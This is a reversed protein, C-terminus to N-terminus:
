LREGRYKIMKQAESIDKFHGIGAMAFLAAGYAAEERYLPIQLPMGFKRTFIKQLLMNKRIGNGSGVIMDPNKDLVPIINQYLDHLEAAIGELIGMTFHQPTFNDIGINRIIGRLSPKDRTGRFNTSIELKNEADPIEEACRDMIDYLGSVEMGTAMHVVSKFFNELVAYASGGCLPAGVLLFGKDVFPRTEVGPCRMNLDSYISIQSGTGVNLLINGDTDKVSGLFSAQNDGIAVAVPINSSTTGILRVGQSAAPFISEDMGVSRIANRDFCNTEMNFFGLSAANSSNMHPITCQALKMATYDQITCIFRASPPVNGNLMNYFHTVAGYGTALKYDTQSNLFEAYTIGDEYIRDGRGDQWNYLPSAANGKNDIYIIGHMQGTIGICDIPSHKGSLIQVIERAKRFIEDPEQLKEWDHKGSLFADNNETITDIMEGNDGNVVVACITTTGIDLGIARM